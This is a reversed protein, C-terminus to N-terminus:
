REDKNLSIIMKSFDEDVILMKQQIKLIASFDIDSDIEEIYIRAFVQRETGIM